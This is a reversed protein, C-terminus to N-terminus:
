KCTVVQNLLQQHVPMHLLEGSEAGDHVTFVTTSMWLLTRGIKVTAQEYLSLSTSAHYM